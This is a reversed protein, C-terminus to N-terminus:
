AVKWDLDDRREISESGDYEHVRFPTGKDLWAVALDRLGGTYAEPFLRESIAVLETLQAKREVAEVLEPCFLVADGYETGASWTSWGAGYGPSYLVAVKGAREVRAVPGQTHASV